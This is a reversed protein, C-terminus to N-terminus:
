PRWWPKSAEALADVRSLGIDKLMRDDLRALDLRTRRRQHWLRLLALARDRLKGLDVFRSRPARLHADLTINSCHQM